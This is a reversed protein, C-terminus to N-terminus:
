QLKALSTKASALERAVQRPWEKVGTTLKGARDLELWLGASRQYLSRARSWHERQLSVAQHPRSALRVHLRATNALTGALRIRYQANNTDTATLRDLLETAKNFQDLAEASNTSEMAKGLNAYCDALAGLNANGGLNKAALKLRATLAKRYYDVAVKTDGGQMLYGALRTYSNALYEHLIADKPDQQSLQEQMAVGRRLAALAESTKGLKGLVFGYAGETFSLDLIAQTNQPDALSLSRDIVLSQRYQELAGDLDATHELLDGIQRHALSVNRRAQADKPDAAYLSEFLSLELRFHELARSLDGAAVLSLGVNHHSFGLQRRYHANAPDSAALEERIALAKQLNKSRAPLIERTRSLAM